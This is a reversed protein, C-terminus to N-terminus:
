AKRRAKMAFLFGIVGVALILVGGWVTAILGTPIAGARTNKYSTKVAKNSGAVAGISATTSDTATKDTYGTVAAAEKSYDEEAEVVSYTANQPLGRIAISQGHQLYFDTAVSTGSSVTISTPNSMTTYTTAPTKVPNAEANGDSTAANNDDALSVVYTAGTPLNELTVTYKFYKDKSAQNGSVENKVILDKFGSAENTFGDSKDSPETGASGNGTGTPITGADSHLVCGSIALAGNNDTVYVDLIRDTDTDNVLGLGTQASTAATETIVYRYIGPEPFTIGTFDITATQKAYKEGSDFQVADASSGGGRQANTRAVDTDGTAVSTYTTDANTFSVNAISPKGNTTDVIGALVEMTGSGASQATGASITFSYSTAPLNDGADVILYKKFTPNTEIGVPTYAAFAPVSAIMTAACLVGIKTILTKLKM